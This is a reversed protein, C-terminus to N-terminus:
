IKSDIIHLNSQLTYKRGDNEGNRDVESAYAIANEFQGDDRISNMLAFNILCNLSGSTCEFLSSFSASASVTSYM